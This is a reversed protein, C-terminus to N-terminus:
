YENVCGSYTLYMPSHWCCVLSSLVPGWNFFDSFPSFSSSPVQSGM